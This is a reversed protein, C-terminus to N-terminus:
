ANVVTKAIRLTVFYATAAAACGFLAAGVILGMFGGEPGNHLAGFSVFPITGLTARGWNFGTSFVAYGLNNFAANAVFIAGLFIWLAGGYDCFFTVLRATDGTASFLAVIFPSLEHLLLWVVVVYVLSVAYSDLLIKQVRHPLKAGMNQSMIPGVVGSLAFLVGFAVPTTRDIIAFAAVTEEGFGSFVRMTYANAVPAALNTLIAPIAIGMLARFNAACDPWHPIEVLDHKIVAGYFGVGAIIMRSIVTVVAAGEVGLGFGFIFIPDLIATGIAGFLTVYMARRADGVARLIAAMAMGLGLFVSAPITWLLYLAGVQLAAGQAGFLALIDTRYPIIAITLALTSVAVLVLGSASLRRARDRDGAGLARAVLAGIAISLGINVSILFFLVQTAFGVAATLDPNQLRAVYFLSLFDVFFIAMLGVSGAATMNLVHKLTSGHTFPALDETTKLDNM